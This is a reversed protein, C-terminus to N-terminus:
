FNVMHGDKPDVIKVAELPYIIKVVFPGTWHSRLKSAFLHLNSDYLLVKDIPKLKKRLISQDHWFKLKAM